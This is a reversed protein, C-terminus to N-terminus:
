FDSKNKLNKGLMFISSILDSSKGIRKSITQM